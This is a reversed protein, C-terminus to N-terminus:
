RSLASLDLLVATINDRGHQEAQDAASALGGALAAEFRRDDGGFPGTLGDTALLLQGGAPLTLTFGEAQYDAGTHAHAGLAHTIGGFTEAHDVTLPQVTGDPHRLYARSDGCWLGHIATGSPDLVAAVLTTGPNRWHGPEALCSVAQHAAHAARALQGADAPGPLAAALTDLATRSAVDGDPHGGIGDAVAWLHGTTLAADQQQDRANIRM